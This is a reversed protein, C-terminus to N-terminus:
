TSRSYLVKASHEAPVGMLDVASVGNWTPFANAKAVLALASAQMASGHAPLWALKEGPSV